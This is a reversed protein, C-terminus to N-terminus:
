RIPRRGSAYVDLFVRMGKAVAGAKRFFSFFPLRLGLRLVNEMEMVLNLATQVRGLVLSLGEVQQHVTVSTDKIYVMTENLNKLIEPLNQQLIDQTVAFGRILRHIQIMLPVTVAAILFVAASLLVLSIELYM